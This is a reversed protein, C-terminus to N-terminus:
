DVLCCGACLAVAPHARFILVRTRVACQCVRVPSALVTERLADSVILGSAFVPSSCPVTTPWSCMGITLMISRLFVNSDVIRGVMVRVFRLLNDATLAACLIHLAEPNYKCCEGLLDFTTQLSYRSHPDVHDTPSGGAADLTGSTVGRELSDCAQLVVGVLFNV